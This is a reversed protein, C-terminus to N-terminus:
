HGLARIRESCSSCLCPPKEKAQEVTESLCMICRKSCHRLGLLHGVEHLAEKALMEPDMGSASLIACMEASCGFVFGTGPYFIKSGVIWLSAQKSEHKGAHKDMQRCRLMFLQKCSQKCAVAELYRLLKAADLPQRKLPMYLYGQDQVRLGYIGYFVEIADRLYAVDALCKGDHFLHLIM